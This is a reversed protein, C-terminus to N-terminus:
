PDQLRNTERSASTNEASARRYPLLTLARAVVEVPLLSQTRNVFRAAAIIFPQDQGQDLYEIMGVGQYKPDYCVDAANTDIRLFSNRVDLSIGTDTFDATTLPRAFGYLYPDEGSNIISLEGDPKKTFKAEFEQFFRETEKLFQPLGIHSHWSSGFYGEPYSDARFVEGLRPHAIALQVTGHAEKQRSIKPDSRLIRFGQFEEILRKPPIWVSPRDIM